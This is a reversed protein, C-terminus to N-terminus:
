VGGGGNVSREGGGGCSELSLMINQPDADAEMLRQIVGRSVVPGPVLRTVSSGNLRGLELLRLQVVGSEQSIIHM